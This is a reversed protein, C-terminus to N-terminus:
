IMAELVAGVVLHNKDHRLEALAAKAMPHNFNILAKAVNARIEPNEHTSFDFLLNLASEAYNTQALEGLTYISVIKVVLDQDELGISALEFQLDPHDIENVVAFISQRILWHSEEKFLKVLYSIAKDGYKALSNAAEAKVNPDNDNEILDILSQFAEDNRKYGLGIAVFSRIIFEKDYMKQKLLPVVVAPEHNRLEVIAKMRNQPNPSDLFNKIETLEM